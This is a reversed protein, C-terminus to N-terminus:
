LYSSNVNQHTDRKYSIKVCMAVENVNEWM